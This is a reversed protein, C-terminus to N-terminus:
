PREAILARMLTADGSAKEYRQGLRANLNGNTQGVWQRTPHDDIQGIREHWLHLVDNPTNEHQAYLCDLSRLLAMDEAGWGCFRSDEGGVLFFAERPMMMILAGYQHGYGEGGVHEIDCSPPPSPFWYPRCPDSHIVRRTAEENLRWLHRFPVYWLRRCEAQAKLISWVCGEIVKPDMWCDADVIAFVRGRARSAAENVACAKSYPLGDYRGVIIEADPLHDKWFRQLWNFVETRHEGNDRFPILLSLDPRTRRWPM